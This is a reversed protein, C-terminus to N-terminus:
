SNNVEGFQRWQMAWTRVAKRASAVPVLSGSLALLDMPCVMQTMVAPSLGYAAAPVTAKLTVM